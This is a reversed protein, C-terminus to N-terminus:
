KTPIKSSARNREERLSRTARILVGYALTLERQDTPHDIIQRM